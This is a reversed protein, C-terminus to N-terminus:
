TARSSSATAPRRSYGATSAHKADVGHKCINARAQVGYTEAHEAVIKAHELFVKTHEPFPGTTVNEYTFGSM